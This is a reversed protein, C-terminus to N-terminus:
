TRLPCTSLLEDCRVAQGHLTKMDIPQTNLLQLDLIGNDNFTYENLHLKRHKDLFFSLTNLARFVADLLM